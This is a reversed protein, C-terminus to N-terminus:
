KPFLINFTTGTKGTRCTISGNMKDILNKVISLGLGSHTKGKTSNVPLYLDKLVAESIGPGNDKIEM